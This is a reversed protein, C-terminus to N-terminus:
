RAEGTHAARQGALRSIKDGDKVMEHV